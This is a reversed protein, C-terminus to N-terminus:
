PDDDSWPQRDEITMDPLSTLSDCDFWEVSLRNDVDDEDEDDDEENDEFLADLPLWDDVARDVTVGDERQEGEAGEEEDDSSDWGRRAEVRMDPMGAPRKRFLDSWSTRSADVTVDPM